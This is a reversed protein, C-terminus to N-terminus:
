GKDFCSCLGRLDGLVTEGAREDLHLDQRNAKPSLGDLHGNCWDPSRTQVAGSAAQCQCQSTEFYPLTMVDM